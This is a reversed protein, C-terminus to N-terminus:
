VIDLYQRFKEAIGKMKQRVWERTISLSRGVEAMNFDKKIYEIFILSERETLFGNKPNSFEELNLKPLVQDEIDVNVPIMELYSKVSDGDTRKIHKDLSLPNIIGLLSIGLLMKEKSLTNLLSVNAEESETDDDTKALKLGNRQLFGRGRQSGIKNIYKQNLIDGYIFRYAYTAFTFGRKTDFKRVASLLAIKGSQLLDEYENKRYTMKNIILQILKENERVLIEEATVAQKVKLDNEDLGKEKLTIGRQVMTILRTQDEGDQSATEPNDMLRTIFEDDTEIIPNTENLKAVNEPSM